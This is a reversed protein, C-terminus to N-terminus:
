SKLFVWSIGNLWWELVMGDDNLWWGVVIGAGNWRWTEKVRRCEWIEALLEVTPEPVDEALLCVRAHLTGSRRLSHGLVLAGLVYDSSSGWRPVM